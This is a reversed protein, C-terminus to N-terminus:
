LVIGSRRKKIFPHQAVGNKFIGYWVEGSGDFTRVGSGNAKGNEVEGEHKYKCGLESVGTGVDPGNQGITCTLVNYQIPHPFKEIEEESSFRYSSVYEDEEDHYEEFYRDSLADVATIREAPNLVMTKELFDIVDASVKPFKEAFDVKKSDPLSEVYKRSRSSHIWGLEDNEVFILVLYLQEKLNNQKKAGKTQRCYM